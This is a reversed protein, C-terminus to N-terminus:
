ANKVYFKKDEYCYSNLDKNNHILCKSNMINIKIFNNYKYCKHNYFCQKCYIKHCELCYNFIFNTDEKQIKKCSYCKEYLYTNLLFKQLYEKISIEIKDCSGLCNFVITDDENYKNFYIDVLEIESKCNICSLKPIPLTTSFSYSDFEIEYGNKKSDYDELIIYEIETKLNNYDKFFNDNETLTMKNIVNIKETNNKERFYNKEKEKFSAYENLNFIIGIKQIGNVRIVYQNNKDVYAYNEIFKSYEIKSLIEFNSVMEEKTNYYFLEQSYFKDEKINYNGILLEYMNKSSYDCKIILMGKNILYERKLLYNKINLDNKLKNYLDDNIIKFEDAYLIKSKYDLIHMKESTIYGSSFQRGKIKNIFNSSLHNYIKVESKNNAGIKDIEEILENYLYYDKYNNMWKENILYCYSVIINNSTKSKEINKELQLVFLYYSILTKIENEIIQSIIKNNFFNNFNNNMRNKASYFNNNSILNGKIFSDKNFSSIRPTDGYMSIDSLNECEFIKLDDSNSISEFSINNGNRNTNLKKSSFCRKKRNASM